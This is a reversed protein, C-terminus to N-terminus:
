QVGKTKINMEYIREGYSIFVTNDKIKFVKAEVTLLTDGVGYVEGDIIAMPKNSGWLVGEITIPPPGVEENKKPSFLRGTETEKPLYSEFPDKHFSFDTGAEESPKVSIDRNQQSGLGLEPIKTNQAYLGFPLIVLMSILSYLALFNM